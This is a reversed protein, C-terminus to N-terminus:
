NSCSGCGGSGCGRSPAAAPADQPTFVFGRQGPAVEVFDLQTDELLPQSPAAILVQVGAIELPLDGERAEDFGFGFALSGDAEVRAAVRLGLGDAGSRPAALQIEQAAAPTLQFM